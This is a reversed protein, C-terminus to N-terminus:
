TTGQDAHEDGNALDLQKELEEARAPKVIHADFGAAYARARNDAQGYGSLAVLRVGHLESRARLRRAVEYGDIDPLGLDILALAPQAEIVLAVGSTGDGAALVEHGCEELLARTTDLIDPNDEILVVRRPTAVRGRPHADEGEDTAGHVPQTTLPIAVEFASGQGRGPSSVTVSGQHLEVLRRVLTLGLGLGGRGRCSQYFPEFIHALAEAEIGRGNDVVEVIAMDGERRARVKISGDPETYRAANNLLNSIVQTLRVFDGDVALAEREKEVDLEHRREEILPMSTAIAQTIVDRLDVPQKRLEIAGSTIRSVELLDDVLRTLHSLQRAMAQRARVMMSPDRTRRLIELANTIPALPNRLEHALVALFEDKRRDAQTLEENMTVLAREARRLERVTSELEDAKAAMQTALRREDEMRRRLWEAEFRQEAEAMRREHERREAERLLEAQLSVELTRQHLEVFVGAKARLIEPVIPKFLFDVAGLSYGHLVEDDDRSYATVFIIPVRMTRQRSRILRATEFGNMGPMEVDLLILAFDQELLYRLAEAGSSAKVLQRSLEGLAAEIAILNGENDDVVLIDAPPAPVAPSPQSSEAM